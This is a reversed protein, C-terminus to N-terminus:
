QYSIAIQRLMVNERLKKPVKYVVSDVINTMIWHEKDQSTQILFGDKKISEYYDLLEVDFDVVNRNAIKAKMHNSAMVTGM